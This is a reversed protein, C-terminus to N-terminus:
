RYAEVAEVAFYVDPHKLGTRLINDEVFEITNFCTLNVEEPETVYSEPNIDIPDILTLDEYPAYVKVFLNSKAVLTNTDDVFDALLDCLRDSKTGKDQAASCENYISDLSDLYNRAEAYLHAALRTRVPNESANIIKKYAPIDDFPIGCYESYPSNRIDRDTGMTEHSIPPLPASAPAALLAKQDSQHQSTTSTNMKKDKLSTKKAKSTFQVTTKM